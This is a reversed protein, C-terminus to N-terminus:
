QQEKCLPKIQQPFCGSGLLRRRLAVGGIKGSLTKTDARPQWRGGRLPASCSTDVKTVNNDFSAALGGYYTLNGIPTGVNNPVMDAELDVYNYLAWASSAPWAASWKAGTAISHICAKMTHECDPLRRHTESLLTLCAVVVYLESFLIFTRPQPM